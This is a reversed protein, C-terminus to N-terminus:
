VVSKRDKDEVRRWHGFEAIIRLPQDRHRFVWDIRDELSPGRRVNGEAGKLSVYRPVPLNTEAGRGTAAEEAATLPKAGVSEEQGLSAIPALLVALVALCGGPFGYKKM